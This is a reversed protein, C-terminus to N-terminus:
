SLKKLYDIVESESIVDGYKANMDFLNAEHPRIDRDGVAEEVIIPRFGYSVTDICTARICGSTTVGTIILTDIKSANLSSFLSTGFFASPYQKSIVLENDKPALGEAWEGMEGGDEMLHLTPVKEIFMGGNWGGKQFVVNTYIVPIGSLRSQDLVRIASDLNKQVSAYLPSKKDFYARVFDVLILAPNNGFGLRKNYGAGDYDSSLNKNEM